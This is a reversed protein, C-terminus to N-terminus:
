IEVYKALTPWIYIIESENWIRYNGVLDDAPIINVM